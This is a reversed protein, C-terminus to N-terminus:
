DEVTDEWSQPDEVGVIAEAVRSLGAVTAAWAGQAATPGAASTMGRASAKSGTTWATAIGGVELAADRNTMAETARAVEATAARRSSVRRDAVRVDSGM